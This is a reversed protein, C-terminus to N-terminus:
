KKKKPILTNRMSKEESLYKTTKNDVSKGVRHYSALRGMDLHDTSLCFRNALLNNCLFFEYISSTERIKKSEENENLNRGISLHLFFFKMHGHFTVSEVCQVLKDIHKLLMKRKKVTIIEPQFLGVNVIPDTKGCFIRVIALCHCM